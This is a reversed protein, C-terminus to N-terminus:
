FVMPSLELPSPEIPNEGAEVVVEQLRGCQRFQVTYLAGASATRSPLYDAVPQIAVVEVQGECATAAQERVASKGSGEAIALASVLALATAIYAQRYMKRSGLHDAIRIGAKVTRVKSPALQIDASRPSQLAGVISPDAPTEWQRPAALGLAIRYCLLKRGPRVTNRTEHRYAISRAVHAM